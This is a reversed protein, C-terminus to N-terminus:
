ETKHFTIVFGTCILGVILWQISLTSFDIHHGSIHYGPAIVEKGSMKPPLLIFRYKFQLRIPIQSQGTMIWPPFIGMLSIIIIGAWLAILQKKNM